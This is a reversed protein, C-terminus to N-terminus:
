FRQLRTPTHVRRQRANCIGCDFRATRTQLMQCSQDALRRRWRGVRWKAAQRFKPNKVITNESIPTPAARGFCRSSKFPAHRCKAKGLPPTCITLSGSVWNKACISNIPNPISKPSSKILNTKGDERIAEANQQRIFARIKSIAKSSKVWGEHLWNVSPVGEKAAIIEM